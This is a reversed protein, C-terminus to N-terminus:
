RDGLVLDVFEDKDIDSFWMCNVSSL